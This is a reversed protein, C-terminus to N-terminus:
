LKGFGFILRFKLVQSFCFPAGKVKQLTFILLPLRLGGIKMEQNPITFPVGGM